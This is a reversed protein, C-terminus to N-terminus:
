SPDNSERKEKEEDFMRRTRRIKEQRKNRAEVDVEEIQDEGREVIIVSCRHLM